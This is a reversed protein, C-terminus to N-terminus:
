RKREQDIFWNIHRELVTLPMAGSGLVAHHFARLDFKDGLQEKAKRRLEEIKDVGIRYALAQGPLDVSYRLTESNIETESQFTHQKMYDRARQLSWGFYNMGTDVVLRVSIFMDFIAKGYRDYPDDLLGAEAALGTAYNGWGENFAGALLFERRAMPLETNESQSALHFHHGPILEHYIVPGAMVLSRDQLQSGNYHYQGTPNDPTPPQYYGFTMSAEVAPNLRKVGYHAKPTKSFYRSILPEMRRIYSLYREEVEAPTKALFRPDTRLMQHFEAQTGKFGLDDRIQQMRRSLEEVRTRGIEHVQEPTLDLTTHLRLLHRYYDKGDPYQSYGVTEPARQQYDGQLFAILRDFAPNIREKISAQLRTQFDSTASDAQGSLRSPSVSFLKESNARHASFLAVVAPIEPKPLRIGKEEQGKIKALMQDLHAAYEDALGLYNALDDATKFRHSALAQHIYNLSRGVVYPTVPFALWYYKRGEVASQAQWRLIELTLADEHDLNRKPVADIKRILSRAYDDDKDAQEPSLDPLKKIPLGYKLRLFINQDLTHRWDADAIEKVQAKPQATDQAQGKFTIAADPPPEVRLLHTIFYDWTRRITYPDGGGSHTRNPLYVLDYPKNAKVLAAVLRFAQNPPVNEDLDGYIIMLRGKLNGAMATIDLKKWNAPSEDPKARYISGDAYEAVGVFSTFGSYLAAYDYVGAGSVAVDYFEPRSLIAQASFTGGWSWGYVGVREPDMEPHRAALQRIAAIHDDIGVQTFETYGADRFASSRNPTGRGDVTVVAFGLRALAIANKNDTYAEVFNRPTVIIQPGGYAADIVPHRPQGIDRLPAHYVAYLDTKGDAAKVKERVPARWGAAFLASADAREVEAIRRGDVTSRLVTVPPASVTSYTDLFVGADPRIRSVPIPLRALLRLFSVPAPDFQHDADADTLLKPEGGDLRAKYLHRYYPDRGPERGGGTFYVERRREDVALIDLVAWEGATIANRLAGTQADYRYLHGWGSRASYWIAEAGDGMIRVNPINYEVTNTEVRTPAKEELVIAAKGTALEVRLLAVSKSGMTRAILFVQGRAVSWGVPDTTLLSALDYSEPPVILTQRGTAPEFVFFSTKVQERDGVSASRIEHLIPRRSGDQPVWEIFPSVGVKREDNRPAILYRGDPSWTSGVPPLAMGSKRNPITILAGETLTGYSFHRAGDSTLQTEQGSALDRVVLNHNRILAARKGDPSPLLGPEAPKPDSAECSVAVLNCAVAKRGAIGTLTKLDASLAVSSLGLNTATPRAEAGIARDLATALAAHDFLPARSGTKPDFRVYSTGRAEDRQYWFSGSDGIWHPEVSQNKVAGRLNRGLLASAAAYDATTFELPRSAAPQQWRAETLWPRPAALALLAVFFFICFRKSM